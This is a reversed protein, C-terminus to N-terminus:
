AWNDFGKSTKKTAPTTAHEKVYEVSGLTVQFYAAVMELERQVDSKVAATFKEFACVTVHLANTKRTYRWTGAIKGRVLVVGEIHGATRWVLKRKEEAILWEKSSHGLLYSDFRYVLRVPWTDPVTQMLDSVDSKLMLLSTANSGSSTDHIQVTTTEAELLQLWRKVEPALAGMWYRVDLASVPGYAHIYRRILDVAAADQTM